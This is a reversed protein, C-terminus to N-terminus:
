IYKRKFAKIRRLVDLAYEFAEDRTRVDMPQTPKPDYDAKNRLDRFDNLTEAVARLEEEMEEDGSYFNVFERVIQDILAKHTTEDNKRKPYQKLVDYYFENLAHLASYYVRSITNRIFVEDTCWNCTQKSLWRGFRYYGRWDFGM